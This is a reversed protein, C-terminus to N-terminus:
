IVFQAIAMTLLQAGAAQFPAIGRPTACIAATPPEPAVSDGRSPGYGDSLEHNTVFQRGRGVM